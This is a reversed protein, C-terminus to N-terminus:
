SKKARELQEAHVSQLTPSVREAGHVGVVFESHEWHTGPLAEVPPSDSHTAHASPVKASAWPAAKQAVTRAPISTSFSGTPM